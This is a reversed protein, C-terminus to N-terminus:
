NSALPVIRPPLVRVHIARPDTPEKGGDSFSVALPNFVPTVYADTVCFAGLAKLTAMVAYSFSKKNVALNHMVPGRLARPTRWFRYMLTGTIAIAVASYFIRFRNESGAAAILKNRVPEHSMILHTSSFATWGVLATKM